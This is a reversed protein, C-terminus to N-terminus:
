LVLRAIQPEGGGEVSDPAEIALRELFRPLYVAKRTIAHTRQDLITLSTHPDARLIGTDGREVVAAEDVTLM